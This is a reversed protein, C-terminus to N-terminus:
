TARRTRLLLILLGAVVVGGIIGGVLAWNTEGTPAPPAVVAEKVRFTGTLGNVDVSYIGAMDKSATFSVEESAGATVTVEKTAEAVGNIKLTVEYSGAEGGTNAVSISITATRGIDVEGPSINLSSPTFAVPTPTPTPTPAPPLPELLLDVVKSENAVVSIGGQSQEKYRPVSVSVIYSGPTVRLSYSGGADTVVATGVVLSAESVVSVTAGQIGRGTTADKVSGALRGAPFGTIRTISSNIDDAVFLDGSIDFALGTPALFGTVFLSVAGDPEIKYVEGGTPPNTYVFATAFLNGSPSVTIYRVKPLEVFPSVTGDPTVRVIGTRITDAMGPDGAQYGVTVFLDGEPGFAISEPYDLGTVFTKIAGEPTIYWIKGTMYEAVFLNSKDDFALGAPRDLQESVVSVEGEPSVKLLRSPFGPNGESYYFAGSREFAIADWPPGYTYLKVFRSVQGGPAARTIMDAEGSSIFLEGGPSFALSQPTTVGSPPSISKVSGDALVRLLAGRNKQVGIIEGTPTVAIGLLGNEPISALRTVKREPTIKFLEGREGFQGGTSIFINGYTDITMGFDSPLIKGPVEIFPTLAGSDLSVKVIKNRILAFLQGRTNFALALINDPLNEIVTTVRGDRTVRLLHNPGPRDGTFGNYAVYIDGTPAVALDGLMATEPLKAVTTIQGDPAIQYITGPANEYAYVNGQADVELAYVAMLEALITIEGEPSVKLVGRRASAVYIDGSPAIAVDFPATIGTGPIFPLATYGETPKPEFIARVPAYTITGLNVDGSVVIWRAVTVGDFELDYTGPPVNVRFKGTEDSGFGLVGSM